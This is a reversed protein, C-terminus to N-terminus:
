VFGSRVMIDQNRLICKLIIRVFNGGLTGILFETHLHTIIGAGYFAVLLSGLAQPYLQTVRDTHSV